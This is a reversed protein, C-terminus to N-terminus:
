QNLKLNWLMEVRGHFSLLKEIQKNFWMDDREVVGVLKLFLGSNNQVPQYICGRQKEFLTCYLKTQEIHWTKAKDMEIESTKFEWVEDDVDLPIYDAKAVLTIGGVKHEVKKEKPQGLLQQVQEHIVIGSWMRTLDLAARPKPKFYEEPTLFGHTIAWMESSNYRGRVRPRSAMKKELIPTLNIDSM